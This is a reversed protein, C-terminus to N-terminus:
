VLKVAWKGDVTREVAAKSQEQHSGRCINLVLEFKTMDDTVEAHASHVEKLEYPLLSNSRQQLGELAKAAAEKVVPDDTPVPHMGKNKIQNDPRAGLDAATIQNGQIPEFSELSRFNEWPKEWVKAKYFKTEGATQTEIILYYMKGAVVQQQASLVRVFTLQSNQRSNYQDVAYKGLDDLEVSNEASNVAKLGGPFTGMDAPISRIGSHFAILWLVSLTALLLAFASTCHLAPLPM